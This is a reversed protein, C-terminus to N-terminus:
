PRLHLKLVHSSVVPEPLPLTILYAGSFSRVLNRKSQERQLIVRGVFSSSSIQSDFTRSEYGEQIHLHWGSPQNETLEQTTQM